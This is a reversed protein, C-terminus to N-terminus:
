ASHHFFYGFSLLYFIFFSPYTEMTMMLFLVAIMAYIFLAYKDSTNFLKSFSVFCIYSFLSLLIIGGTILISWIYNHTGFALSTMHSYYWDKDVSGFGYIPSELFTKAAADWLYTRNTFTIDKGLIDKVLYIALDNQEIGKGQFCVFIQFMIVVCILSLIGTRLLEKSPILCFLLFLLIGTMSTMSGVITLTIISILTVPIINLLWWRSYKLCIISTGVACLLRCGMQNYNSGLLYGQLSKAEGIFWLEPHTILHFFNLYVCVSFSIAFATVILNYRNKYYDCAMVIFTISCADYISSKVDNGNIITSSLLLMQFTIVIFTFSSMFGQRVYVFSMAVFSLLTMGLVMYSIAHLELVNISIATNIVVIFIMLCPLLVLQSPAIRLISDLNITWFNRQQVNM